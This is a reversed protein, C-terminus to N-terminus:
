NLIGAIIGFISVLLSIGVIVFSIIKHTRYFDKGTIVETQKKNCYFGICALNLAQCLSIAVSLAFIFPLFLNFVLAISAFLAGILENVVYGVKEGRVYYILSCASFVGFSIIFGCSIFALNLLIENLNVCFAVFLSIALVLFIVCLLSSIDVCKDYFTKEIKIDKKTKSIVKSTDKPLGKKVPYVREKVEAKKTERATIVHKSETKKSLTSKEEKKKVRVKGKVTVTPTKESPKLYYDEHEDGLTATASKKIDEITSGYADPAVYEAGVRYEEALSICDYFARTSITKLSAYNRIESLNICGSFANKGIKQVNEHLILATIDKRDKFANEGIINYDAPIHVEGKLHLTKVTSANLTVLEIDPRDADCVMCKEFVDENYSSCKRCLWGM